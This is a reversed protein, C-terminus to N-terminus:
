FSFVAIINNEISSPFQLFMNWKIYVITKTHTTPESLGNNIKKTKMNKKKIIIGYVVKTSVLSVVVAIKNYNIIYSDYQFRIKYPSL